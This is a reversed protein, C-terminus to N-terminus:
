SAVGYRLYVVGNSFSRQDLLELDVRVDEPFFAHGGGVIAPGIIRAVHDDFLDAQGGIGGGDRV